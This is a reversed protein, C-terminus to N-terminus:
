YLMFVADNYLSLMDSGSISSAVHFFLRFVSLNLSILHKKKKFSNLHHLHIVSFFVLYIELCSYFLCHHLLPEEIKYNLLYYTIINSM